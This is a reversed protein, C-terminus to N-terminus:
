IEYTTIGLKKIDEFFGPYSKSVAECGDIEGGFETLIVALSMVIRHDNHGCLRERPQHLQRKQVTVSNEEILLSAGFKSLEARMAEARDSEKIKLRRTGTFRGGQKVAALTFLIPGLDPCDEINIECFGGDLSAFYERYARDGQLSNENLGDVAVSGGLFNLAEIFAAGSWDGEVTISRAYPKQGGKIQLVSDGDWEVKVGFESLASRTLEVYSKSEIKTTLLIKSDGNLTSLAFILGTIFQSSVDGRIRYEGSRLRGKVTIKDIDKKFLFGEDSAIEEYVGQPRSILKKSGSLIMEEGSLLALPILFRLTSGSERCKLVSSPKAKKFDIGEIAARSGDYEIKVGLARLCDITALVDECPTIGEIVSRQGECMAAAILLRHAVSKSTPASVRGEAQGKGVYRIM